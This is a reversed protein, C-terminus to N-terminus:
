LNIPPARGSPTHVPITRMEANAAIPSHSQELLVPLSTLSPTLAHAPVWCGAAFGPFMPCTAPATFAPATGYARAMMAMMEANMACHHAGNRRCCAPLRADDSGELVGQLPGFAFFLVLLVALPRRM